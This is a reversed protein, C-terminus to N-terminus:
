EGALRHFRDDRLVMQPRIPCEEGSGGKDLQARRGPPSRRAVDAIEQRLALSLCLVIRAYYEQSPSASPV